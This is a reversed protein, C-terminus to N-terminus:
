VNKVSWKSLAQDYSWLPKNLKSNVTNHLDVSWYFLAMSERFDITNLKTLYYKYTNECISCPFIDKIGILKHIILQNQQINNSNDIITITHIFGWLWNGWHFKPQYKNM